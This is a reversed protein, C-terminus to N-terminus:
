ITATVAKVTAIVTQDTNNNIQVYLDTMAYCETEFVVRMDAVPTVVASAFPEDSNNTGDQSGLINITVSGETPNSSYDLYVDFSVGFASGLDFVSSTYTAESGVSQADIITSQSSKTLAM